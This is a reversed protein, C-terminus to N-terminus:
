KSDVHTIHLYIHKYTHLRTGFICYVFTFDTVLHGHMCVHVYLAAYVYKCM